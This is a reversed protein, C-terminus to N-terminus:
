KSMSYFPLFEIKQKMSLKDVKKVAITISCTYFSVITKPISPYIKLGILALIYLFKKKLLLLKIEEDKLISISPLSNLIIFNTM